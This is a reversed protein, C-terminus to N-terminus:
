FPNSSFEWRLQVGATNVPESNEVELQERSWNAQVWASPKAASNRAFFYNVGATITTWGDDDIETNPDWSDYRGVIEFNDGIRVIPMAMFGASIQGDRSLGLYEGLLKAPGYEAILVGAMDLQGLTEPSGTTDTPDDYNEFKVSGGITINDMPKFRVNGQYALYKDINSYFKKYGEGNYIGAQYEGYGGPIKGSLAVGADASPAIGLVDEMAKEITIYKWDYTMGFYNKIVGAYLKANEGLSYDLYASKIKLGAGSADASKDSSYVDLTFQSGIKETFQHSLVLYGRAIGFGNYETEGDASIHEYRMWTKGAVQSEGPALSLCTATLAFVGTMVAFLMGKM